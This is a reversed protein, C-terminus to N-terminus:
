LEKTAIWLILGVVVLKGATESSVGDGDFWVLIM